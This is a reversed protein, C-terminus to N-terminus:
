RVAPKATAKPTPTPSSKPTPTAKPSPGASDVLRAFESTVWGEKGTLYEIKFWGTATDKEIFPYRKGPEVRGVESGGTGAASRVRLFGTGTNLIEVFQSKAVPTPSPSPSSEISTSEGQVEGSPVLKFVATLKYGPVTRVSLSRETFGNASVALQHEGNTVNSTKYPAFGRVQGDLSIQAADPISIVSLSMEGGGVKEFSVVVGGSLDDSEGFERRVVTQVNSTLTVKTEFPVLPREFSDPVLKVTVEGAERVGQYPTRGVQEGNIFVTSVPTTEVLIGAGEKQFKGVAFLIGGIVLGVVILIGFIKLLKKM